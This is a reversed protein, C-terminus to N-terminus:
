LLTLIKNWLTEYEKIKRKSHLKFLFPVMDARGIMPFLKSLLFHYSIMNSKKKIKHYIIEIQKFLRILKDKEHQFLTPIRVGKQRLILYVCSYYKKLKQRQLEIRITEPDMGLCLSMIEDPILMSIGSLEDLKEKFHTTKDYPSSVPTRDKYEIFPQVMGREVRCCKCCIWLGDDCRYDHPCETSVVPPDPFEAKFLDFLADMEKKKMSLCM